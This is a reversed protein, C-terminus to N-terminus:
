ITTTEKAGTGTVPADTSRHLTCLRSVDSNILRPRSLIWLLFQIGMYTIIRFTKCTVRFGLYMRLSSWVNRTPNLVSIPVVMAIKELFLPPLLTFYPVQAHIWIRSNVENDGHRRLNSNIMASKSHPDYNRTVFNKIFSFSSLWDVFNRATSGSSEKKVTGCFDTM